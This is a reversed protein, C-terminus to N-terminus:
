APAFMLPSKDDITGLMSAYRRRAELVMHLLRSLTQLAWGMRRLLGKLLLLVVSAGMQAAAPM